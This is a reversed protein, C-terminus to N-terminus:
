LKQANKSITCVTGVPEAFSFKLKQDGIEELNREFNQDFNQFYMIKSNEALLGYTSIKERFCRPAREFFNHPHSAPLAREPVPVPLPPARTQM